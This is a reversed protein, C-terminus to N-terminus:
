IVSIDGLNGILINKKHTSIATEMVTVTATTNTIGTMRAFIITSSANSITNSLSFANDIPYTMNTTDSANYTGGVFTVYSSTSFKVGYSQGNKGTISNAKAKELASAISDTTTTLTLSSKATTYWYTGIGLLILAIAIVVIIEILTFGKHRYSSHFM